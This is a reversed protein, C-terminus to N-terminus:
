SAAALSSFRTLLLIWSFPNFFFPILRKCLPSFYNNCRFARLDFVSSRNIEPELVLQCIFLTHFLGGESPGAPPTDNHCKGVKVVPPRQRQQTTDGREAEGQWWRTENGRQPRETQSKQPLKKQQLECMVRDM